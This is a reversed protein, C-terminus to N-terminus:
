LLQKALYGEIQIQGITEECKFDLSKVLTMIFLSIFIPPSHPLLPSLFLCHFVILSFFYFSICISKMFIESLIVFDLRNTNLSHQYAFSHLPPPPFM